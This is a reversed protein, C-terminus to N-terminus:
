ALLMASMLMVSGSFANPGTAASGAGREANTMLVMYTYVSNNAVLPLAGSYHLIEKM